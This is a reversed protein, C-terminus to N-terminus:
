IENGIVDKESRKRTENEGLSKVCVISRLLNKIFSFIGVKNVISKHPSSYEHVSKRVCMEDTKMRAIVIHLCYQSHYSTDLFFM